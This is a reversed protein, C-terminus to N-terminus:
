AVPRPAASASVSYPTMAAKPTVKTAMKRSSLSNPNRRTPPMTSHTIAIWVKRVLGTRFSIAEDSCRTASKAVANTTVPVLGIVRTANPTTNVAMPTTAAPSVRSHARARTAPTNTPDARHHVNRVAMAPTNRLATPWPPRRQILM